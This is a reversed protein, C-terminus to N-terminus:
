HHVLLMLVIDPELSASWHELDSRLELLTCNLLISWRVVSDPRVSQLRHASHEHDSPNGTHGIGLSWLGSHHLTDPALDQNDKSHLNFEDDNGAFLSLHDRHSAPGLSWLMLGLRGLDASQISVTQVTVLTVPAWLTSPTVSARLGFDLIKCILENLLIMQESMWVTLSRLTKFVQSHESLHEIQLNPMDGPQEHVNHELQVSRGPSNLVSLESQDLCQDTKELQVKQGTNVPRVSDGPTVTSGPTIPRGPTTVTGQKGPTTPPVSYRIGPGPRHVTVPNVPDRHSRPM